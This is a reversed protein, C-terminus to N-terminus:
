AHSSPEVHARLAVCDHAGAFLRLSTRAAKDARLRRETVELLDELSDGDQRLRAQGISVGLTVSENTASTFSSLVVSTQIRVVIESIIEPPTNRLLAFFKDGTYRALMDERRLQARVLTTLERLLRDGAARGYRENVRAFDDVDVKVLALPFEDAAARMQERTFLTYFHRANPLGTLPDILEDDAEAAHPATNRLADATLAAVQSLLRLQEDSYKTLTQAYLALAGFRREDKTLPCIALTRYGRAIDGLAALDLAPDTNAFPQNNALVWGTVGEGPRVARGRFSDANLGAVYQAVSAGGAEDNLYVVCTEFPVLHELKGVILALAAQRDEVGHLARTLESLAVFAQSSQHAALITQAYDAPREQKTEEALGAAPTARRIAETEEIKLPTFTQAGAKLETIQAEFEPLHAIFLDVVSPDYYKGKDKLLLEIAEERTMGKRYQRDERVADFCDVVTLIRATLPIEEGKLGDPYGTGDWREHHHRVIPVLPYPFEVRSLIQAGVITHLKMQEFEAATLKGPKKLIYDPVAIKGIDHLLAGAKLAEIEADDCGMLRAVGAAYIQVRLVHEHTVEDKANIAVALAEITERHAKELLEIRQHLNNRYQRHGFNIAILIPAGIIIM